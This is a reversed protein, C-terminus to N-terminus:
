SREKRKTGDWRELTAVAWRHWEDDRHHIRDMERGFWGAELRRNRRRSLLAVIRDALRVCSPLALQASRCPEHATAAVYTRLHPRIADPKAGGRVLVEVMMRNWRSDAARRALAMEAVATAQAIRGSQEYASYLVVQAGDSDPDLGTAELALAIARDHDGTGLARSARMVRSLSRARDLVSM